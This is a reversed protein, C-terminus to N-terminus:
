KFGHTLLPKSMAWGYLSNADLYQICTSEKIKDYAHDIHKPFKSVKNKTDKLKYPKGNQIGQKITTMMEDLWEFGPTPLTKSIQWKFKMSIRGQIGKEIIKDIWKNKNISSKFGYIKYNNANDMYKNNATGLRNSIMSIGGRIRRKIMLIMDYDSLLELEIKIEKLAADWALGPSTYYWARDLKYNKMCLDRFKEFVYALLLVDADNYLNHYDRFIKCDFEKWVTQAHLYDEDSIGEDNLRSYFSEKRQLQTENLKSIFDVWKYPCVGKRLLLNLKKNELEKYNEKISNKVLEDLSSAMFRCSDIFRLEQKVEVKKGIKNTYENVKIEKSFNIYNEENNPICNIKKESKEDGLLKKIFLRSDYGTLNHFFVPIFKPIKHKLNCVNHAAGRYKGTIHCHDKVKDEKLDKECIYCKEANDFKEKEKPTFIMNKPFKLYKNYIKKIDAELNDAFIQAVDDDESDATFTALISHGISKEITKEISIFTALISHDISKRIVPQKKSTNDLGSRYKGYDRKSSLDIVAFGHPESWAENCFKKFEAKNPMDSSAHDNYIHNLNKADQPFLCIFNANERITRRPLEFYNQALYFYDVNSHRGRIYYTKCKNQKTLQLDDFIILNNKICNLNEPEPVDDATEFFKCEIDTKEKLNKSIDEIIFMPSVNFKEIKDQLKFLELIVEKPVKKEFSNKLIKYESKGVIIGRISKPLLKNNNRKSKNVNWSLDIIDM